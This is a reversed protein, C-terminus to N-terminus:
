EELDVHAAAFKGSRENLVMDFRVRDGVKLGLGGITNGTVFCDQLTTGDPRIFGYNGNASITVVAGRLEGVPAKSAPVARSVPAPREPADCAEVVRNRRMAAALIESRASM